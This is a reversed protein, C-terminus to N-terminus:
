YSTVLLQASDMSFKTSHKHIDALCHQITHTAPNAEELSVDFQKSIVHFGQLGCNEWDNWTKEITYIVLYQLTRKTWERERM